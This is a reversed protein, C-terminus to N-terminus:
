FIKLVVDSLSTTFKNEPIIEECNDLSFYRDESVFNIFDGYISDLILKQSNAKNEGVLQEDFNQRSLNSESYSDGDCLIFNIRNNTKVSALFRSLTDVLHSGIGGLGIVCVNEYKSFFDNYM